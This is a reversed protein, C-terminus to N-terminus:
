LNWTEVSPPTELRNTKFSREGIQTLCHIAVVQSGQCVEKPGAERGRREGCRARKSEHFVLGWGQFKGGDM